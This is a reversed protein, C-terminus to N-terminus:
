LNPRSDEKRDPLHCGQLTRELREREEIRQRDAPTEPEPGCMGDIIRLRALM